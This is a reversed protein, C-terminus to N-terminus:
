LMFLPKISLVFLVYLQYKNLRIHLYINKRWKIKLFPSLLLYM